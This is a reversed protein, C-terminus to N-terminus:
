EQYEAVTQSQRRYRIRYPSQRIPAQISAVFVHGTVARCSLQFILRYKTEDLIVSPLVCILQNPAERKAQYLLFVCFVKANAGRENM